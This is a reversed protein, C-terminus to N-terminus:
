RLFEAIEEHRRQTPLHTYIMTTAINAHGVAHMITDLPANNWRLRSAFSHRLVHPGIPRGALPSVADRVVDYVERPKMARKPTTNLPQTRRRWRGGRAPLFLWPTSSARITLYAHLIEALRPIIVGMRDKAGKGQRVSLMGSELNVDRVTLACLESCRLGVLLGTAILAYDRVCPPTTARRKLAALVREQEPVTLSDPLHKPQRLGEVLLAPNNAIVGHVALFQLFKRVGALNRNVTSATRGEATRLAVFLELLQATVQAPMAVGGRDCFQLFTEVDRGYSEVTLLGRRKVLLLWKLFPRLSERLSADRSPVLGSVDLAPRAPLLEGSV